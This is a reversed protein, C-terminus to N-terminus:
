LFDMGIRECFTGCIVRVKLGKRKISDCGARPAHISVGISSIHEIFDHDCGARPAHISVAILEAFPMIDLDCGARPAHISVSSPSVISVLHSRRVGSPTRPNFGLRILIGWPYYRDCGARPAHISVKSIMFISKVTNDCGARPAHISVIRSSHSQIPRFDCGARPAHISVESPFFSFFAGPRRVGSPTRPNFCAAKKDTREARLRM